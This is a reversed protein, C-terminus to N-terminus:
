EKILKISQKTNIDAAIEIFYTGSILSSLDLQKAMVYTSRLFNEHQVVKGSVDYIVLSTLNTKTQAEITLTIPGKTPNPYISVTSSTLNKVEIYVTDSARAGRDDTVELEFSYTGDKLGRVSSKAQLPSVLECPSQPSLQRWRYAVITGDPDFGSGQLTTTNASYLTTDRGANAVPAQNPAPPPPPPPAVVVAANVTVTITDSASAGNNDTVTIRFSYSGEVLSQVTTQASSVSNIIFQSPGSLKSWSYSAISGDADSATATLTVSNVPLTITIDNGASVVPPQNVAPPPAAANVTISLTDSASAGKDDSVQLQFKYIGEV